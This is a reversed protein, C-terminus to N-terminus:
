DKNFEVDAMIKTLAAIISLQRDPVRTLRDQLDDLHVAYFPLTNAQVRKEGQYWMELVFQGPDTVNELVYKVMDKYKKAALFTFLADTSALKVQEVVSSDIKGKSGFKQLSNVISRLDPYKVKVIAKIAEPEFEVGENKCIAVARLAMSKMMQMKDKNGDFKIVECRSLLADDLRDPYNATLFFTTNSSYQEMVARLALQADNTLQDAEDFLVIKKQDDLSLSSCYTTIKNRIVDIGREASGNLYLVEADLENCIVKALTTKGIGPLGAFITHMAGKKLLGEIDARLETPIIVESLKQPRYKQAWIFEDKLVSIEM